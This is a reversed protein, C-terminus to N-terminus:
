SGRFDPQRKEIFALGGETADHTDRVPPGGQDILDWMQQYGERMHIERVMHKLLQIAVAPGRALRKAMDMTTPMLEDLPVVENVLGFYLAEAADMADGTLLMEMARAHPLHYPAWFAGGDWPLWGRRIYVEYFRASDAAYRLDCTFALDAGAGAAVGNVAAITPKDLDFVQQHIRRGSFRRGELREEATLTPVNLLGRERGDPTERYRMFHPEVFNGRRTQLDGGASFADGAGTFVVVRDDPNARIADLEVMLEEMMPLVWPNLYRPANLTVTVVGDDRDVLIYDYDM